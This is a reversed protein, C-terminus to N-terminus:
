PLDGSRYVVRGGVMTLLSRIASVAQPPATFPDASLVALDALAGPALRGKDRDAFEAYASGRTYAIVAQERTLAEAPNVAGTSARLVGDFPDLAGDSGLALAIGEDVISRLPQVHGSRAPGLRAELVARIALRSPVYVTVVGLAHARARLDPTLLLARELRPRKARWVEPRGARELAALVAEAAGDGAAHVALPDESGYAWGAILALREPALRARGADDPRDAYPARLWAGRVAITGDVVWVMGRVDMTPAPQPPLHPRSDTLDRGAEGLPARSVRWRISTGADLIRRVTEAVPLQDAVLHVSTVGVRLAQDAFARFRSAATAADVAAALRRDALMGAYGELRGDLRGAPDRGVRGGEPPRADDTLGVLSLAASNLLREHGDALSLWVPRDPVRADLWARSLRRDDWAAPGIVGRIPRDLPPAAVARALAADLDEISPDDGLALRAADPAVDVRVRADNLGPVVVRGGADIRGHRPAGLADISAVPGVAVVRDGRVAVADAWPRADDGTFVRANVISLDAPPPACAVGLAAVCATALARSM